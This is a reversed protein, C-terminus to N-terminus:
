LAAAIQRAGVSISTGSGNRCLIAAGSLRCSIGGRSWRDLVPTSADWWIPAAVTRPAGRSGLALGARVALSRCVLGGGQLRCAASADPLRFGASPDGGGAHAFATCCAALAAAAVPLLLRRM